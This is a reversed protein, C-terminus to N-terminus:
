NAAEIDVVLINKGIRLEDGNILIAPTEVREDNLFTGNTSALDEIWWHTNRFILRAHKGSIIPDSLCIACVEDRGLLIESQLFTRKEAQPDGDLTITIAPIKRRSLIQSHLKLDNWITIMAWTLFAYLAVVIFVRLLLVLIPLATM